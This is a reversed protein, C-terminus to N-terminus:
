GDVEEETYNVFRAPMDVYAGFMGNFIFGSSTRQFYQSVTNKRFSRISSQFNEELAKQAKERELFVGMILTGEISHQKLVFVKNM